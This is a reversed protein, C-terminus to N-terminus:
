HIGKDNFFKSYKKDEDSIHNILWDKLFENIKVGITLKSTAMDTQFGNIKDVFNKHQKEQNLLGPYANDKMLKEEYKFHFNTYDVLGKLIVPAEKSGQGAKMAEHLQNILDVLKKHQNDIEKVGVSYSDDWVIYAM